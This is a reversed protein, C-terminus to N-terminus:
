YDLYGLYERTSRLVFVPRRRLIPAPRWARLSGVDSRSRLGGEGMPSFSRRCLPLLFNVGRDDRQLRRLSPPLGQVEAPRGEDALRDGPLERAPRAPLETDPHH